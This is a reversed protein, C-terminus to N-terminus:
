RANFFFRGEQQLAAQISTALPPIAGSFIKGRSSRPL